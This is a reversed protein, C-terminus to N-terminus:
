GGSRGSPAPGASVSGPLDLVSAPSASSKWARIRLALFVMILGFILAYAGIWLVLTLLGAAPFLAFLIGLAISLAGSLALLWEGRIAKRLRIAAAIELAGTVLAWAAVIWLLGVATAAPLLVAFVGLGIGAIGELVLAGAPQHAGRRRLASVILLIGDTFAFAGFVLVMAALSIGPATLAIIGFLIAVLGRLLVVWWNHVLVNQIGISPEM